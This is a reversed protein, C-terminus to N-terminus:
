EMNGSDKEANKMFETVKSRTAIVEIKGILFVLLYQAVVLTLLLLAAGPLGVWGMFFLIIPLVWSFQAIFFLVFVFHQWWKPMLMTNAVSHRREDM